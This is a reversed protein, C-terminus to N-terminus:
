YNMTLCDSFSLNDTVLNKKRATHFHLISMAAPSPLEVTRKVEIREEFKKRISWGVLGNKLEGRCLQHCVLTMLLRRSMRGLCCGSHPFWEINPWAGIMDYKRWASSPQCRQQCTYVRRGGIGLGSLIRFIRSVKDGLVGETMGWLSATPHISLPLSGIYSPSQRCLARLLKKDLCKSVCSVPLFHIVPLKTLLLWGSFFRVKDCYQSLTLGKKKATM